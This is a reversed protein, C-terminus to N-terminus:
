SRGPAASGAVSASAAEEQIKKEEQGAMKLSKRDETEKEKEKRRFLSVAAAFMTKLCWAAVCLWLMISAVCIWSLGGDVTEVEDDQCAKAEGMGILVATTVAPIIRELKVEDMWHHTMSRVEERRDRLQQDLYDGIYGITTMYKRIKDRSLSKTGLDAPSDKGKIAKIVLGKIGQIWLGVDLHRAKGLGKRAFLQRSSSSDSYMVLM